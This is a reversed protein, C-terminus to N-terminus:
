KVKGPIEYEKLIAPMDTKLDTWEKRLEKLKDTPVSVLVDLVDEPEDGIKIKFSVTVDTM